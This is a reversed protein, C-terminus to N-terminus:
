AASGEKEMLIDLRGFFWTKWSNREVSEEDM